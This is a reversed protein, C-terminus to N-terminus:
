YEKLHRRIMEPTEVPNPYVLRFPVGRALFKDHLRRIEPAYRNSIPCDVSVFLFAVARSDALADFPDVLQNDLGPLRLPTAAAGARGSLLGPLLVLALLWKRRM